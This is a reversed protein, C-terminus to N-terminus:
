QAAMVLASKDGRMEPGKGWLVCLQPARDSCSTPELTTREPQSRGSLDRRRGAARGLRESTKVSFYGLGEGEEGEFIGIAGGLQDNAM